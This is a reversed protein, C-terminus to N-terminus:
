SVVRFCTCRADTHKSVHKLSPLLHPASLHPCARAHLIYKKLSRANHYVCVCRHKCIDHLAPLTLKLQCDARLRCM